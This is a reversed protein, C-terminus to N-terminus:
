FDFPFLDPSPVSSTNATAGNHQAHANFSISSDTPHTETFATVGVSGPRSTFSDYFQSKNQYQSNSDGSIGLLDSASNISTSPNGQSTNMYGNHQPLSKQQHPLHGINEGNFSMPQGQGQPHVHGQNQGEYPDFHGQYPQRYQPHNAPNSNQIQGMFRGSFRQGNAIGPHSVQSQPYMPRSMQARQALMRRRYWQQVNMARLHEQMGMNQVSREGGGSGGMSSFGTQVSLPGRQGIGPYAANSLQESATLSRNYYQQMQRHSNQVMFESEHGQSRPRNNMGLSQTMGSSPLFNSGHIGEAPRNFYAPPKAHTQHVREVDPQLGFSRSGPVTSQNPFPGSLLPPQSGPYHTMYGDSAIKLLRSNSCTPNSCGLTSCGPNPCTHTGIMQSSPTKSNLNQLPDIKIVKNDLGNLIERNNNSIGGYENNGFSMNGQAYQNSNQFRKNIELKGESLETALDFAEKIISSGEPDRNDPSSVKHHLTVSAKRQEAISMHDGEFLKMANSMLNTGRESSSIQNTQSESPNVNRDASREVHPISTLRPDITKTQLIKDSSVSLGKGSLLDAKLFSLDIERRTKNQSSETKQDLLERLMESNEVHSCPKGDEQKCQKTHYNRKLYGVKDAKESTPPITKEREIFSNLVKEFDQLDHEVSKARFLKPRPEYLQNRHDDSTMKLEQQTEKNRIDAKSEFTWNKGDSTKFSHSSLIDSKMKDFASDIFDSGGNVDDDLSDLLSSIDNKLSCEDNSNNKVPSTGLFFEEGFGLPAVIAVPPNFDLEISPAKADGSESVEKTKDLEEPDLRGKKTETEETLSSFPSLPRKKSVRGAQQSGDSLNKGDEEITKEEATKMESGNNKSTDSVDASIGYEATFFDAEANGDLGFPNSMESLSTDIENVAQVSSPNKDQQMNGLYIEAVSDDYFDAPLHEAKIAKLEISNLNRVADECESEDANCNETSDSPDSTFAEFINTTKTLKDSVYEESSRQEAPLSHGSPKSEGSRKQSDKPAGEIPLRESDDHKKNMHMITEKLPLM